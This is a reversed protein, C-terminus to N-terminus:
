FTISTGVYDAAFYTIDAYDTMFLLGADTSSITDSFVKSVGNQISESTTLVDQTSKGFVWDPGNTVDAVDVMTTSDSRKVGTDFRITDALSISDDIRKNLNNSVTDSSTLTDTFDRLFGISFTPVDSVSFSDTFPKTVGLSISDGATDLFDSVKKGFGIYSSDVSVISDPFFPNKNLTDLEAHTKLLIYNIAAAPLVYSTNVRADRVSVGLSLKVNKVSSKAGITM